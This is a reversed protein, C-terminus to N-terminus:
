SSRETLVIHWCSKGAAFVTCFEPARAYFDQIIEPRAAAFPSIQRACGLVPSGSNFHRYEGFANKIPRRAPRSTSEVLAL